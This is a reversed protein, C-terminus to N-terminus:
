VRLPQCSFTLCLAPELETMAAALADASVGAGRPGCSISLPPPGVGQTPQPGAASSRAKPVMSQLRCYARRSGQLLGKRRVSVTFLFGVKTEPTSVQGYALFTAICVSKFVCHPVFDRRVEARSGLAVPEVCGRRPFGWIWCEKVAVTTPLITGGLHEWGPGQFQSCVLKCPTSAEQPQELLCLWSGSLLTGTLPPGCSYSYLPASFARDGPSVMACCMVSM